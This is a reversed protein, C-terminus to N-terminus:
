YSHRRGGLLSLSCLMVAGKPKRVMVDCVEAMERVDRLPLGLAIGSLRYRAFRSLRLFDWIYMCLFFHVFYLRM